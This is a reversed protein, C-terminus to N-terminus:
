STGEELRSIEQSSLNLLLYVNQRRPTFLLLILVHFIALFFFSLNATLIYFVASMLGPVEIMAWWLICAHQYDSLREKAPRQSNRVKMIRGKFVRFGFYLMVLSSSVVLVQLIRSLSEDVSAIIGKQVIIFAIGAFLCQGSLLSLHLIRLIKFSDNRQKMYIM